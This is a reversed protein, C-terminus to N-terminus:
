SSQKDFAAAIAHAKSVLWERLENGKLNAPVTIIVPVEEIEHVLLVLYKDLLKRIIESSYCGLQQSAAKLKLHLEDSLSVGVPKM